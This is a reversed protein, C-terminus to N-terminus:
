AQGGLPTSLEDEYAEDIVLYRLRIMLREPYAPDPSADLEMVQVRPEWREVAKRVYHMALGATTDDALEFVLHQLQCGYDPRMCREGPKTALLMALSQKIAGPGRNTALGGHAAVQFGPADDLGPIGFHFLHPM